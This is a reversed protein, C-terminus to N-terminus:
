FSQCCLRVQWRGVTFAQRVLLWVNVNTQVYLVVAVRAVQVLNM